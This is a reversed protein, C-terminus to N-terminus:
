EIEEREKKPNVKVLNSCMQRNKLLRTRSNSLASNHALSFNKKKNAKKVAVSETSEFCCKM